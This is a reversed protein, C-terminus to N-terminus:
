WNPIPIHTRDFIKISEYLNWINEIANPIPRQLSNMWCYHRHIDLLLQHFFAFLSRRGEPSSDVKLGQGFWEWMHLRDRERYKHFPTALTEGVSTKSFLIPLPPFPFIPFNSHLKQFLEGRPWNLWFPSCSAPTLYYGCPILTSLGTMMMLIM